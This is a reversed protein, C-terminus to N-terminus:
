FPTILYWRAPSLRPTGDGRLRDFLFASIDCELFARHRLAHDPHGLRRSLLFSSWVSFLHHRNLLGSTAPLVAPAGCVTLVSVRIGQHYTGIFQVLTSGIFAFLSAHFASAWHFCPNSCYRHSRHPTRLRPSCYGAWWFTGARFRGPPALFQSVEAASDCEQPLVQPLLFLFASNTLSTTIYGPVQEM